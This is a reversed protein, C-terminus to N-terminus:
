QMVQLAMTHNESDGGVNMKPIWPKIDEFGPVPLDLETFFDDATM